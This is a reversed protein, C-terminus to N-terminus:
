NTESQMREFEDSRKLAERQMGGMNNLVMAAQKRDVNERVFARGHLTAQVHEDFMPDGIHNEMDAIASGSRRGGDCLTVVRTRESEIPTLITDCEQVPADIDYRMRLKVKEVTGGTSWFEIKGPGDRRPLATKAKTLMTKVQEASYPVIAPDYQSAKHGVYGGVGLVGVLFVIKAAM